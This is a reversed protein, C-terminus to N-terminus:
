DPVTGTADPTPPKPPPAHCDYITGGLGKVEGWPFRRFKVDGRAPIASDVMAEAYAADDDPFEDPWWIVGISQGLAELYLVEDRDNPENDAPPAEDKDFLGAQGANYGESYIGPGYRGTQVGYMVGWVQHLASEYDSGAVNADGVESKFNDYDLETVLADAVLRWAAKSVFIRFRYDSTTSEHVRCEGLEAPFRAQLNTLHPKVRARVMLRRLDPPNEKSGDGKRACVVSYFGYKSFLWM